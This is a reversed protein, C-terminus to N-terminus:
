YEIEVNGKLIQIQCALRSGAPLGLKDITKEENQTKRNLNESGKVISCVCTGCNGQECGFLMNSEKKVYDKIPMGEPVEIEVGENLIKIKPM